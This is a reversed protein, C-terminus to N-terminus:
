SGQESHKIVALRLWLIFAIIAFAFWQIAYGTHMRDNPRPRSWNRVFGHPDSADQLLLFPYLDLGSWTAYMELTLYPWSPQQAPSFGLDLAPPLPIIVTGNVSVPRSPPQDAVPLEADSQAPIWGRNVLLYRDSTTIHLPTILHFGRKGQHKRNEILVKKSHLYRGQASLKRHGAQTASIPEQNLDIPLMQTRSDILKILQRKEQARDLQWLGLATFLPVAFILVIITM